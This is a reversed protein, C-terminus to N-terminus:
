YKILKMIRQAEKKGSSNLHVSLLESHDRWDASDDGSNALKYSLEAEDGEAAEGVQLIPLRGRNTDMVYGFDRRKKVKKRSGIKRSLKPAPL